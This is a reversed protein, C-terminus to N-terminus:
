KKHPQNDASIIEDRLGSLHKLNDIEKRIGKRIVWVLVLALVIFFVHMIVMWKFPIYTSFGPTLLYFGAVYCAVIVLTVPGHVTKRFGYFSLASKTLQDTPLTLRIANSKVVSILEILIRLSLAGLMLWMGARSLSSTFSTKYYFFLAILILSLTLVIINGYIEYLVNKKRAKALRIIEQPNAASHITERGDNWTNILDQM